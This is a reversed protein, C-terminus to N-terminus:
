LLGRELFSTVEFGAVVLHDIVHIDVLALSKQHPSRFHRSASVRRLDPGLPADRWMGITYHRQPKELLAARHVPGEDSFIKSLYHEVRLRREPVVRETATRSWNRSRWPSHLHGILTGLRTRLHHKKFRERNLVPDPQAVVTGARYLLVGPGSAGDSTGSACQM